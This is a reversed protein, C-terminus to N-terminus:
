KLIRSHLKVDRDLLMVVDSFHKVFNKWLRFGFDISDLPQIKGITGAPITLLVIDQASDPRNRQIINPCHGTRSDLLLVSNPGVNPYYVERVWTEFHNSTLKSSKSSM